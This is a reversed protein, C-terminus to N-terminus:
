RFRSLQNKVVDTKEPKQVMAINAPLDDPADPQTLCIQKSIVEVTREIMDHLYKKDKEEKIPKASWSKTIKSFCVNYKREGKTTQAQNLNFGQNFDLAALQSRVVMGQFSFHKRKPLWKNYLSHYVELTGTHSFNTLHKLDSLLRKSLVIEQLKKFADSDPKIWQKKRNPSKVIPEHDCKHFKSYGTWQHKDQIHFLISTWKERLLGEDGHSTSCAWWFHNSISKIWKAIIKCSNKRSAALLKTKINKSVHWVDFQHSIDRREERMFKRIQVHRDTTVQIVEICNRELDELARTFALKEMRNSNKAETVQVVSMTIIRNSSQDLLSYTLYKANHGPSDCRGDGSIKCESQNQLESIIVRKENLWPENVVGILYRKQIHYHRTKGIWQIGALKFYTCISSFTNASLLVSAALTVNGHSHRKILPQSRWVTSHGNLCLSKVSLLSGTVFCKVISSPSSCTLCKCFLSKLCTWYVVFATKSPAISEEIEDGSEDTSDDSYEPLYLSSNLNTEEDSFTDSSDVEIDRSVPVTELDCQIMADSTVNIKETQVGIERTIPIAQVEKTNSEFDYEKWSSYDSFSDELM